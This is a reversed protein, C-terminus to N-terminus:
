FMSKANNKAEVKTMHEKGCGYKSKPADFDHTNWAPSPIEDHSSSAMNCNPLTKTKLQINHPKVGHARSLRADMKLAISSAMAQATKTAGKVRAHNKKDKKDLEKLHEATMAAASKFGNPDTMAPRKRISLVSKQDARFDQTAYTNSDIKTAMVDEKKVDVQPGPSASASFSISM